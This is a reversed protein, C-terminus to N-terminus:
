EKLTFTQGEDTTMTKGSVTLKVTETQGDQSVTVTVVPPNYVYTGVAEGQDTVKSGTMEMYAYVVKSDSSFELLEVWLISSSKEQYTWTTGVLEGNSNEDDDSCGVFTVAAIAAFLLLFKKM